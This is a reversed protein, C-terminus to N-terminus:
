LERGNPTQPVCLFLSRVGCVNYMCKYEVALRLPLRSATVIIHCANGRHLYLKLWPDRWYRSVAPRFLGSLAYTGTDDQEVGERGRVSRRWLYSYLSDWSNSDWCAASWHLQNKYDPNIDLFCPLFKLFIWTYLKNFFIAFFVQIKLGNCHKAGKFLFHWIIISRFPM